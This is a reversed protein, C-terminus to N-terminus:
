PARMCKFQRICGKKVNVTCLFENCAKYAEPLFLGYHSGIMILEERDGNQDVLNQVPIITSKGVNSNYM